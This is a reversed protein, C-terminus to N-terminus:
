APHHGAGQLHHPRLDKQYHQQHREPTSTKGAGNSGILCVIENRIWKWLQHGPHVHVHGYDVVLNDIKLMTESM